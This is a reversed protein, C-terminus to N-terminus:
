FCYNGVLGRGTEGLFVPIVKGGAARSVNAIAKAQIM